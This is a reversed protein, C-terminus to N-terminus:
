PLKNWITQRNRHTFLLLLRKRPVSGVPRRIRGKMEAFLKDQFPKTHAMATDCYANEAKIYEIVKPNEKDRLWYYNDTRKNGHENFEQPIIEAVPPKPFDDQTKPTTM